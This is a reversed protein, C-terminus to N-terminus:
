TVPLIASVCIRLCRTLTRCKYRASLTGLSRGLFASETSQATRMSCFCSARTCLLECIQEPVNCSDRGRLSTASICVLVLTNGNDSLTAMSIKSHQQQQQQQHQQYWALTAKPTSPLVLAFIVLSFCGFKNNCVRAIYVLLM